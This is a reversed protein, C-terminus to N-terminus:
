TSTVPDINRGTDSAATNSRTDTKGTNHGTANIDREVVLTPTDQKNATEEMRLSSLTTEIVTSNETRINTRIKELMNGM